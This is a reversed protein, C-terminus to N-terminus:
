VGLLNKTKARGVPGLVPSYRVGSVHTEPLVRTDGIFVFVARHLKGSVEDSFESV